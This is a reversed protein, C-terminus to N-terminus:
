NCCSAGAVGISFRSPSILISTFLTASSSFFSTWFRVSRFPHHISSFVSSLLWPLRESPSRGEAVITSVLDVEALYRWLAAYAVDNVAHLDTRIFVIATVM